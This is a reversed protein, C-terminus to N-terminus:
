VRQIVRIVQIVQIVQLMQIVQIVRILQLMQIVQVSTFVRVRSCARANPVKSTLMRVCVCVSALMRMFQALRRMNMSSGQIAGSASIYIGKM